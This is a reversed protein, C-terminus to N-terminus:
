MRLLSSKLNDYIEKSRPRVSCPYAQSDIRWIPVIKLRNVELVCMKKKLLKSLRLCHHNRVAWASRRFRTHYRIFPSMVVNTSFCQFIGDVCESMLLEAFCHYKSFGGCHSVAASWIRLFGTTYLKWCAWQFTSLWFKGVFRIVDTSDARAPFFFVWCFKNCRIRKVTMISLTM